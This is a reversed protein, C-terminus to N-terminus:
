IRVKARHAQCSPGHALVTRAGIVLGVLAGFALKQRLFLCRFFLYGLKFSSPRILATLSSHFEWQTATQLVPTNKTWNCVTTDISYVIKVICRGDFM